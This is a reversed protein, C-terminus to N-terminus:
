HGPSQLFTIAGGQLNAGVTPPQKRRGYKMVTIFDVTANQTARSTVVRLYRNVPQYVDYIVVKDDDSDAVTVTSGALTVADTLSVGDNGDQLLTSTVAGTVIAGFGIMILVGECTATDIIDSDLATTGAAGEFNTGDVKIRDIFVEQSLNRM